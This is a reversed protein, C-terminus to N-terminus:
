TKIGFFFNVCSHWFLFFFVFLCFISLIIFFVSFYFNSWKSTRGGVQHNVLYRTYYRVKCIETRTQVMVATWMTPPSGRREASTIRLGSHIMNTKHGLTLTHRMGQTMIIHPTTLVEGIEGVGIRGGKCIETRTQVMVATWLTPPVREASTIRLGSHIRNTKHGLTLIQRM